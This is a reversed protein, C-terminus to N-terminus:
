TPILVLCPALGRVKRKAAGDGDRANGGSSGDATAAKLTQKFVRAGSIAAGASSAKPAAAMGFTIKEDDDARQLETSEVELTEGREAARAREKEVM